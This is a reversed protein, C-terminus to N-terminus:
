NGWRYQGHLRDLLVRNYEDHSMAQDTNGLRHWARGRHMYPQHQGVGTTVVLIERGDQAQIREIPFAPPEIERMEAALQEITRDSVDQGIVRGDPQVGFLVTGGRHNLMACIARAGARREGTTRKLELTESEGDVALAEIEDIRM